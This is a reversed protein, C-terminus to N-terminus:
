TENSKNIPTPKEAVGRRLPIVKSRKLTRIVEARAM